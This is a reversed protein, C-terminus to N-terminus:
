EDLTVSHLTMSEGYMDRNSAQFEAKLRIHMAYLDVLRWGTIRWAGEVRGVHPLGVIIHSADDNIKNTDAKPEYYFTRFSSGESGRRYVKPDVYFVRGSAEHELRLDPYGSRQSRGDATLPYQCSFGELADLEQQLIDELHGSVENIRGVEHLPHTPVNVAELMAALASNLAGILAQDAPNGPDVPLVRHGTAARVVDRFPIGDIRTGETLLWDVLAQVSDGTHEQPAAAHGQLGAIALLCLM